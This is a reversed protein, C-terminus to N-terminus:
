RYLNPYLTRVKCIFSDLNPLVEQNEQDLVVQTGGVVRNTNTFEPDPLVLKKSDNNWWSLGSETYVPFLGKDLLAKKEVM